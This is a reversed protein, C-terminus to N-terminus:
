FTIDRFAAQTNHARFNELLYLWVQQWGQKAFLSKGDERATEVSFLRSSEDCPQAM